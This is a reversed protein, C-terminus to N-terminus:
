ISNIFVRVYCQQLIGSTEFALCSYTYEQVFELIHKHSEENGTNKAIRTTEHLKEGEEMLEDADIDLKVDETLKRVEAEEEGIRPIRM